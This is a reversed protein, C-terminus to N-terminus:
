TDINSIISSDGLRTQTIKSAFYAAESAQSCSSLKAHGVWPLRSGLYYCSNSGRKKVSM